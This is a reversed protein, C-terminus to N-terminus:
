MSILTISGGNMWKVLYASLASGWPYTTWGATLDDYRSDFYLYGGKMEDWGPLLTPDSYRKRLLDYGDTATFDYRFTEPTETLGSREVLESLSVARAGLYDHTTMGALFVQVSTQDLVVYVSEDGAWPTSPVPGVSSYGNKYGDWGPGCGPVLALAFLLVALRYINKM